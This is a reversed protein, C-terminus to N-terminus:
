IKIFEKSVTIGNDFTPQNLVNKDRERCYTGVPENYVKFLLDTHFLLSRINLNFGVFAEEAFQM